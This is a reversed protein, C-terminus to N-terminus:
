STLIRNWTWILFQSKLELIKKVSFLGSCIWATETVAPIIQLHSKVARQPTSYRTLVVIKQFFFLISGAAENDFSCFVRTMIDTSLVHGTSALICPAPLVQKGYNGTTFEEPEMTTETQSCLAALGRPSSSFPSNNIATVSGNGNGHIPFSYVNSSCQALVNTHKGNDNNAWSSSM